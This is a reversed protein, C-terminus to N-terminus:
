LAKKQGKNKTFCGFQIAKNPCQHYCRLCGTCNGKWVVKGSDMTINYLPCNRACLGCSNCNSNTHFFRDTVLTNNFLPRLIYSKLFPMPGRVVDVVSKRENINVVIIPIREDTSAVKKTAVDDADVDFGPLCVYTNPMSVSYVSDLKLGVRKLESSLIKDTYGMDDGCTMVAWVYAPKIGKINRVFEEVVSPLGWAYVPFVLGLVDCADVCAEGMSRLEEGLLVSLKEAVHKSNGTGSFYYIM